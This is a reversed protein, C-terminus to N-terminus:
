RNLRNFYNKRYKEAREIEKNPTKQTKKQFGNTLILTNRAAWFGFIRYANSGYDIRCEWIEDSGSMKKFFEKSIIEGEGIIKLVWIIKQAIKAPQSDLFEEVPYRGSETKFFEIRNM